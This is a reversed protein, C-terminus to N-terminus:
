LIKGFIYSLHLLLFLIFAETTFNASASSEFDQPLSVTGTRSRGSAGLKPSKDFRVFFLTVNTVSKKNEFGTAVAPVESRLDFYPRLQGSVIAIGDCHIENSRVVGYFHTRDM